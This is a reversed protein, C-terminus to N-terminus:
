SFSGLCTVSPTRLFSIFLGRVTLFLVPAKEGQDKKRNKLIQSPRAESRYIYAQKKRGLAPILLGIRELSRKGM